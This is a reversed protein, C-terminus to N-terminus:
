AIWLGFTPHQQLSQDGTSRADEVGLLSPAPRPGDPPVPNDSFTNFTKDPNTETGGLALIIEGICETERALEEM